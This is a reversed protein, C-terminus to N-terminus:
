GAREGAPPSSLPLPLVTLINLSIEQVSCQADQRSSSARSAKQLFSTISMSRVLHCPFFKNSFDLLQPLSGIGQLLVYRAPKFRSRKSFHIMAHAPKDVTQINSSPWFGSKVSVTASTASASSFIRFAGRIAGQIM